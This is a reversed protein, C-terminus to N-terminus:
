VIIQSSFNEMLSIYDGNFKPFRLTISSILNCNSYLFKLFPSIKLLSPFDGPGYPLNRINSIFNPNQLTLEVTDVFDKYNNHTSMIVEFSHLNVENEVFIKFLSRYVLSTSEFNNVLTAVWNEIACM